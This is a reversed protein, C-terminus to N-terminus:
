QQGYQNKILADLQAVKGEPLMKKKTAASTNQAESVIRNITALGDLVKSTVPTQQKKEVTAGVVTSVMNTVSSIMGQVAGKAGVLAKEANTNKDSGGSNSASTKGDYKSCQKMELAVKCSVWKGKGTIVTESIEAGALIMQCPVLKQGAMYFYGKSGKHADDVFALAENKVDSGTLANLEVTIKIETPNSNKGTVYKQGDSTSDKMEHSSKITLGSFSRILQPTVMFKHGNWSAIEPM